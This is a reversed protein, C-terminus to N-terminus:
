KEPSPTQTTLTLPYDFLHQRHVLASNTIRSTSYCSSACRQYLCLLANQWTLGHWSSTGANASKEPLMSMTLRLSCCSNVVYRDGDRTTLLVYRWYRQSLSHWFKKSCYPCARETWIKAWETDMLRHAPLWTPDQLHPLIWVNQHPPQPLTTSTPQSADRHTPHLGKM